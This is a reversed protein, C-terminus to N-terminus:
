TKEKKIIVSYFTNFLRILIKKREKIFVTDNTRIKELITKQMTTISQGPKNLHNGTAQHLKKTKAYGIHESM